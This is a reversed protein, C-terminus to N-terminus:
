RIKFAFYINAEGRRILIAASGKRDAEKMARVYDGLNSIKKQNVSVIIDGRRIGADAAMGEPDLDTILVGTLGNLRMDGPIEEATIGLWGSQPATSGPNVAAASDSSGVTVQLGHEKGDRFIKVEVRQGVPTEAVALQLQRPDKIDKGGFRLVIDGQRLGSKEAPSGSMIDSILAGRANKLGFSRALEDTVPQISIGLWGRTVSGKEVLQAVVKKAM